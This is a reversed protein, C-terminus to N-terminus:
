KHSPLGHRLYAATNELSGHDRWGLVARAAPPVCRPRHMLPPEYRLASPVCPVPAYRSPLGRRPPHGGDLAIELSPVVLATREPGTFNPDDFWQVRQCRVPMMGPRLVIQEGSPMRAIERPLMLGLKNPHVSTTQKDFKPWGFLPCGTIVATTRSAGMDPHHGKRRLGFTCYRGAEM